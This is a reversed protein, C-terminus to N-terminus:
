MPKIGIESLMKITTTMPLGVVNTHCGAMRTVFPDNDQIGYGGAKGRWEGSAVYLDIKDPSLDRMRVSSMVRTMRSYERGHVRVCVGTIVIHTTGALLNLMARAGAADPPKGLIQDGFAVLTDAALIVNDPFREAVAAAKAEALKLALASPLLTSGFQNEDIDAPHVSFEFGAERMLSQRRPSCSALILLPSSLPDISFPL